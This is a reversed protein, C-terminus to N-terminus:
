VAGLWTWFLRVILLASDVTLRSSSPVSPFMVTSTPLVTLSVPKSSTPSASMSSYSCPVITLVPVLGIVLRVWYLV